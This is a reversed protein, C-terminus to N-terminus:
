EGTRVAQQSYELLHPFVLTEHLDVLEKCIKTLEADEYHWPPISFQMTPLFTNLQTWRIFLQPDPFGDSYANGGIMDPLIFPYGIISFTLATTLVSKLGNELGWNSDKDLMRVYNALDQTQSGVRVEIMDGMASAMRAYAESYDNPSKKADKLFFKEPLWNIEGADFKFSDINTGSKIKNLNEIFWRTSNINTSDLILSEGSDWWKTPM